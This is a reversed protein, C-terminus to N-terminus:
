ILVFLLRHRGGGGRGKGNTPSYVTPAKVTGTACEGNSSLSDPAEELQTYERM